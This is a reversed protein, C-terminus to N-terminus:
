FANGIGFIHQKKINCNAPSVRYIVISVIYQMAYNFLIINEAIKKIVLSKKLIMKNAKYKLYNM